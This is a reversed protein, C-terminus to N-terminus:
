FFSKRKVIEVHHEARAKKFQQIDYVGTTLCKPCFFSGPTADKCVQITLHNEDWCHTCYRINPNDGQLTFYGDDTRMIRSEFNNQKKLERNEKELEDIRKQQELVKERLQVNEDVLETKSYKLFTKLNEIVDM